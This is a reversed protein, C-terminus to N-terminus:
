IEVTKRHSFSIFENILLFFITTTIIIGILGSMSVVSLISLIELAKSVKKAM